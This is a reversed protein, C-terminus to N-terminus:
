RGIRGFLDRLSEIVLGWTTTTPAIVNFHGSGPAEVLRALTDRAAVALPYYSRGAPGWNRDQAGVLLIQPVGIPLLLAPSVDRYREPVLEPSGGM